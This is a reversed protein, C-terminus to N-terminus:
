AIAHSRAVRYKNLNSFFFKVKVNLKPFVQDVQILISALESRFVSSTAENGPEGYRSIFVCPSGSFSALVSTYQM